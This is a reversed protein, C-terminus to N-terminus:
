LVRPRPKNQQFMEDPTMTMAHYLATKMAATPTTGYAILIGKHSMGNEVLPYSINCQYLELKENFKIDGRKNQFVIDIAETWWDPQELDWAKIAEFAEDTLYGNFFRDKPQGNTDVNPNNKFSNYSYPM